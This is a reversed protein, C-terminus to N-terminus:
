EIKGNAPPSGLLFAEALENVEEQTQALMLTDIRVEDGGMFLDSVSSESEGSAVFELLRQALQLYGAKTAVLGAEDYGTEVVIRLKPTPETQPILVVPKLNEM